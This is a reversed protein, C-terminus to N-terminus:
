AKDANLEIKQFRIVPNEQGVVFFRVGNKAESTKIRATEWMKDLNEKQEKTLDADIRYRTVSEGKEQSQTNVSRLQRNCTLAKHRIEQSSLRVLVPRFKHQDNKKGLRRTFVMADEFNKQDLGALSAVKLVQQKDYIRRDQASEGEHEQIGRFILNMQRDQIDAIEKVTIVKGPPFDLNKKLKDVYTDGEKKLTDIMKNAMKEESQSQGKELEIIRGKLEKNEKELADLRRLIRTIEDMSDLSVSNSAKRSNKTTRATDTM